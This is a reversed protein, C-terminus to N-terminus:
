EQALFDTLRWSIEGAAAEQITKAVPLTVSKQVPVFTISSGLDQNMFSTTIRGQASFGTATKKVNYFYL